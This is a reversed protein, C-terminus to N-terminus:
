KLERQLPARNAPPWRREGFMRNLSPDADIFRHKLVALVHVLILAALGYAFYYHVTGLASRVSKSFQGLDPIAVLNFLDVPEGNSAVFLFGTTPIVVMAILFVAHVARAARREWAALGAPLPPNPHLRIWALKVPVLVFLSLGLTVHLDLLRWYLAEEDSLGTMYWGLPILTIIIAAILWHLTKAMRGYRAEASRFTM